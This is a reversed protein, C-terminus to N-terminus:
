EGLYGKHAEWVGEHTGGIYTGRILRRHVGKHVGM